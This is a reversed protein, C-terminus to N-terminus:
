WPSRLPYSKLALMFNARWKPDDLHDCWAILFHVNDSLSATLGNPYALRACTAALRDLRSITHADPTGGTAAVSQLLEETAEQTAVLEQAPTEFYPPPSM